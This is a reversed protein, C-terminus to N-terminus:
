KQKKKQHSNTLKMMKKFYTEGDIKEEYAIEDIQESTMPIIMSWNEDTVLKYVPDGSSILDVSRLNTPKYEAEDFMEPTITEPTVAEYGDIYYEVIGSKEAYVRQFAGSLEESLAEM